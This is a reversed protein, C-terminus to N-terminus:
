ARSTKSNHERVVSSITLEGKLDVRSARRWIGSCGCRPASTASRCSRARAAALGAVDALALSTSVQRLVFSIGSPDLAITQLSGLDLDWLLKLKAPDILVIKSTTVIVAQQDHLLDLHAVYQLKSGDIGATARLWSQGLAERDQATLTTLPVSACM